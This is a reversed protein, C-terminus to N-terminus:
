WPSLLELCSRGGSLDHDGDKPIYISHNQHIHHGSTLCDILVRVHFGELFQFLMVPSHPRVPIWSVYQNLMVIGVRVCTKLGLLCDGFKTPSHEGWGGITRIQRWLIKMKKPWQLINQTPCPKFIVLAHNMSHPCPYMFLFHAPVPFAHMGKNRAPTIGYVYISTIHFFLMKLPFMWNYQAHIEYM